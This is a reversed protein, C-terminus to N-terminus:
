LPLPELRLLGAPIWVCPVSIRKWALSTPMTFFQIVMIEASLLACHHQGSSMGGMGAKGHHWGMLWGLPASSTVSICCCHQFNLTLKQFLVLQSAASQIRSLNRRSFTYCHGVPFANGDGELARLVFLLGPHESHPAPCVGSLGHLLPEWALAFM